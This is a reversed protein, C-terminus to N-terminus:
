INFICVCLPRHANFSADNIEVQDNKCQNIFLVCFILMM